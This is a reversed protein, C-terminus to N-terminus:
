GKKASQRKQKSVKTSKKPKQKTSKSTSTTSMARENIPDVASLAATLLPEVVLPDNTSVFRVVGDDCRAVTTQEQDIMRISVGPETSISVSQNRGFARVSEFAAACLRRDDGPRVNITIMRAYSENRLFSQARAGGFSRWSSNPRANLTALTMSFSMDSSGTSVWDPHVSMWAEPTPVFGPPVFTFPQSALDPALLQSTSTLIASRLQEVAAWGETAVRACVADQAYSVLRHDLRVGGQDRVEAGLVAPGRLMESDIVGRIRHMVRIAAVFGEGYDVLQAVLRTEYASATQGDVFPRASVRSTVVAAIGIRLLDADSITTMDAPVLVRLPARGLFVMSVPSNRPGIEVLVDPVLSPRELSLSGVFTAIAENPATPLILQPPAASRGPLCPYDRLSVPAGLAGREGALVMTMVTLAAFMAAVLRSRRLSEERKFPSRSAVSPASKRWVGEVDNVCVGEGDITRDVWDQGRSM